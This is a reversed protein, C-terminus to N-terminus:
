GHMMHQNILVKDLHAMFGSIAAPAKANVTNRTNTTIAHPLLAEMAAVQGEACAVLLPTHGAQLAAVTHM